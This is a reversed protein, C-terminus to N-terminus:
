YLRKWPLHFYKTKSIELYFYETASSSTTWSSLLCALTVWLASGHRMRERIVVLSGMEGKKAEAIFLITFHWPAWPLPNLFLSLSTNVAASLCLLSFSLPWIMQAKHSLQSRWPVNNWCASKHTLLFCVTSLKPIQLHQSLSATTHVMLIHSSSLYLTALFSCLPAWLEPWKEISGIKEFTVM